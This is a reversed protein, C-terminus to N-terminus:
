SVPRSLTTTSAAGSTEKASIARSCRATDSTIRSRHRRDHADDRHGPDAGQVRGGIDACRATVKRARSSRGSRADAM